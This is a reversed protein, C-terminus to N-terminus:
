FAGGDIVNSMVFDTGNWQAIDGSQTPAAIFEINDTLGRFALRKTSSGGPVNLSATVAPAIFNISSSFSTSSDVYKLSASTGAVEIGAGDSTTGSTSGSALTILKDEVYLNATNLATTNGNVILDGGVVVNGAQRKYVDGLGRSQSIL